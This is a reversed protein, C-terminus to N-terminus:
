IQGRDHDRLEAGRGVVTLRASEGPEKVSPPKRWECFDRVVYWRRLPLLKTKAPETIHKHIDGTKDSGDNPWARQNAVV